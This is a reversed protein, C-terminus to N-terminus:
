VVKTVDVRYVRLNGQVGEPIGVTISARDSVDTLEFPALFKDGSRNVEGEFLQTESRTKVVIRTAEGSVHIAALYIGRSTSADLSLQFYAYQEYGRIAIFSGSGTSSRYIFDANGANIASGPYDLGLQVTSGPASLTTAIVCDPAKALGLQKAISRLVVVRERDALALLKAGADAFAEANRHDPPPAQTVRLLKLASPSDTITVTKRLVRPEIKKPMAFSRVAKALTWLALIATRRWCVDDEQGPLLVGGRRRDYISPDVVM